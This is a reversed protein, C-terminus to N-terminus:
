LRDAIDEATPNYYTMLQNINKHGVMRALDLVQIKKALRTIAEHRSDHFTLGEVGARDRAVRFLADRTDATIGFGDPVMSWIELARPSLPVNRASGNKTMPLRAVRGSVDARTLNCIEGARMATEIAFLFALAVCQQKTKPAGAADDAWGLALCIRAIEDPSIRRERHPNSKPRAVDTMPNIVLWKWEKRATSFVHSLLNMERTVSGGQVTLLRTDRWAAIHVTNLDSMCVAGLPMKGFKTLRLAEWRHGLKRKSVELEYRVFADACTKSAAIPQGATMRQEAEWKLAGAKTDFTGSTRVGALMIRHRWVKGDKTPGAM